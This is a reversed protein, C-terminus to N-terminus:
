TSAISKTGELLQKSFAYYPYTASARPEFDKYLKLEFNGTTRVSDPTNMNTARIRMLGARYAFNCGKMVIMNSNALNSLDYPQQRIWVNSDSVKLMNKNEDTQMVEYGQYIYSESTLQIDDPFKISLYCNENTNPIPM